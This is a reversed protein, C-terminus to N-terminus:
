QGYFQKKLQSAITFWAVWGQDEIGFQNEGYICSQRLVVTKLGYIRSYDRVYQDASGKSCGYPSHFDLPMKESVGVINEYRYRLDDEFVSTEYEGYVKNTSSFLFISSSTIGFNFSSISTRSIDIFSIISSICSNDFCSILISTLIVDSSINPIFSFNSM